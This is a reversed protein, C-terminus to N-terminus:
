EFCVPKWVCNCYQDCYLVLKWIGQCWIPKIPKIPKIPQICRFALHEYNNLNRNSDKFRQACLTNHMFEADKKAISEVTSNGFLFAMSILLLVLKKM